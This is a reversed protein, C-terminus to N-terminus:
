PRRKELTNRLLSDHAKGLIRMVSLDLKEREQRGEEGRCLSLFTECEKRLPEDTAYWITSPKKDFADITDTRDYSVMKAAVDDFVVARKSGVVIVRRVKEPHLWSVHIHGRLGSPWDFHVVSMGAIRPAAEEAGFAVIREPEDNALYRLISVDHPAFSWLVDEQRRIRGPSLQESYIYELRGLYGIDILERMKQVASHTLFVHGVFLVLDRKIAADYLECAQNFSLAAPKEVFVHKGAQLAQLALDAHTEAPTAIVVADVSSQLVASLSGVLDVTPSIAEATLRGAEDKDYVMDLVGLGHFNRVLNKGWKGCGVVAVRPNPETSM